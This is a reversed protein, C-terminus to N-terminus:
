AMSAQACVRGSGRSMPPARRFAQMRSSMSPRVVGHGQLVQEVGEQVGRLFAEGVVAARQAAGGDAALAPVHQLAIQRQRQGHDTAICQIAIQLPHLAKSAVVTHAQGRVALRGHRRLQKAALQVPAGPPQRECRDALQTGTDRCAGRAADDGVLNKAGDVQLANVVELTGM